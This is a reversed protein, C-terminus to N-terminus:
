FGGFYKLDNIGLSETRFDKDSYTVSFFRILYDKREDDNMANEDMAKSVFEKWIETQELQSSEAVFEVSGLFASRLDEHEEMCRLKDIIEYFDDMYERVALDKYCISLDSNRKKDFRAKVTEDSIEEESTDVVREIAVHVPKDTNETFVIAEGVNLASLFEKQKDDMLMTDGVVEKDDRALIKHIIKNNTNKLVEVALKNPIQDVIILGEGYKRVEALLDTFTEVAAKRAGGDSFDPKTLLRHAEEVLTVHRYENNEKHEKRIAASVGSLVLGMILAKDEPSKLDELELIINHNVLYHLDVSKRCNLMCGKSGVTLNSLRSVLSGIYESQLRDGFEKEKTVTKLNELLESLIPMADPNNWADSGFKRNRNTIINWGKDEYCRYIAEELIQPMSAEMPFASTFTAKLMDIHSSIIEGEILEFPNLRFPAVSENGLTFVVLDRYKNILTRYETKAPEIIMFPIGAKHIEDLIRHCTTTKGSGTVGAIFTHKALLKQSIHLPVGDLVRGKQIMSGLCIQEDDEKVEENVGFNVGTNLVIGPVETQPLGTYLSIEKATLLTSLYIMDNELPRSHLLAAEPDINETIEVHNQFTKLINFENVANLDLSRDVLPSFTSGDGQFLSMLCSKLKNANAPNDAMYYVSTSYLGKSIGVNLRKLLEEDIYKMTEQAKKNTIEMSLSTSSGGNVTRSSSKGTTHSQSTGSSTNKSTSRSSSGSSQSDGYSQSKGNTDSSNEGETYSSGSNSSAQMSFKSIASLKDYIGYVKNQIDRIDSKKVPECVVVLRWSKGLMSNILRDIGQFDNDGNQSDENMSPIGNIMGASKYRDAMGIITETLNSGRLKKLRSGNFNGEFINRIMDGYDSTSLTSDDANKNKVVGICLEVGSSTGTLVYVLNFSDNDLSRLVNEFAERRPYESDYLLQEVKFFSMENLKLEHMSPFAPPDIATIDGALNFTEINQFLVNDPVAENTTILENM